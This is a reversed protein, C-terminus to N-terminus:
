FPARPEVRMRLPEKPRLSLGGEPLVERNPTLTLRHRAALTALVTVIQAM